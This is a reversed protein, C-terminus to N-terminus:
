VNVTPPTQQAFRLPTVILQASTINAANSASTQIAIHNFPQPVGSANATLSNLDMSEIPDIEFIVLKNKLAVDTQFTAQATQVVLTDSTATDLDAVIPAASIAKANTGSTDQAQLVSFTVQAANGQTVNCIVFAKHGNRLSVYASTRGAGDAAPNLLQVVQANEWLRYNRAM